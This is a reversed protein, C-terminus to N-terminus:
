VTRAVRFKSLLPIKPNEIAIAIAIAIAAAAAAAAAAQQLIVNKDDSYRERWGDEDKLTIIQQCRLVVVRILSSSAHLLTDRERADDDCCLM